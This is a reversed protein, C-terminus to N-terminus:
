IMLKVTVDELPCIKPFFGDFVTYPNFERDGIPIDRLSPHNCFPYDYTDEEENRHRCQRCEWIVRGTEVLHNRQQVRLEIVKRWVEAEHVM